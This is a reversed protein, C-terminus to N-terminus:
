IPRVRPRQGVPAMALTTTAVAAIIDGCAIPARYRAVDEPALSAPYYGLGEALQARLRKDQESSAVHTRMKKPSRTTIPKAMKTMGFSTTRRLSSLPDYADEDNDFDETEVDLAHHRQPEDLKDAIVGWMEQPVTSKVADLIRYVQLRMDAMEAGHDGKDLVAQLKEAARLGTEVSVEADDDVLRRFAKLM